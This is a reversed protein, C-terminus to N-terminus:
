ARGGSSSYKLRLRIFLLVMIPLLFFLSSPNKSVDRVTGCGGAQVSPLDDPAVDYVLSSRGNETSIRYVSSVATSLEQGNLESSSSLVRLYYKKNYDIDISFKHETVYNNSYDQLGMGGDTGYQLVDKAPVNTSWKIIIKKNIVDRYVNVNSITTPTLPKPKESDLAISSSGDGSVWKAVLYYDGDSPPIFDILRELPNNNLASSALLVPEGNEDPTGSFLYLDFDAGNPVAISYNYERSASLTVKRLFSKQEGLGSGFTFSMGTTDFASMAGQACVRGYGEVRDKLGGAREPLGPSVGTRTYGLSVLGSEGAGVEYASMCLLMKYEAPTVIKKSAMLGILGTVFPAAQSTGVKLAYPDKLSADSLHNWYSGYLTKSSAIYNKSIRSGGPALVDPKIVTKYPSGLSTYETVQDLENVAGVTIASPELGPSSVNFKSEQDNGASVVVAVGQAVLNHVASDIVDSSIGQGISFSLNVAVINDSAAVSSVYELGRVIDSINGNGDSNLSKVAVLESEYSMGAMRPFPDGWGKVTTKVYAWYNKGSVAPDSTYASFAYPVLTDTAFSAIPYSPSPFSKNPTVGPGNAIITGSQAGPFIYTSSQQEAQEKTRFFVGATTGTSGNWTLQASLDGLSAGDFQAPFYHAVASGEPALLDALEFYAADNLEDCSAGDGLIIGAVHTGHGHDDKQGVSTCTKNYCDVADIIRGAFDSHNLDIGTDVVAIRIAPGTGGSYKGKYGTGWVERAGLQKTAYFLNTQVEYDEDITVVDDNAALERIKQETARVFVADVLHKAFYKIDESHLNSPLQKATKNLVVVIDHSTEASSVRAGEQLKKLLSPSIKNNNQDQKYNCSAFVFTLVLFLSSFLLQKNKM